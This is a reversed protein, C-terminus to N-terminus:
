QGCLARRVMLAYADRGASTLHIGDDALYEDHGESTGYWDIIGVNNNKAAFDRFVQNNPDQLELPCRITVFYLPKGGVADVLAQVTSTDRILGNTGLAFVVVDPDYGTAVDQAYVDQGVFLQRSVKGDVYADPLYQQLAPAAGETVSDGIYLVKANCTGTNPDFTWRSPDLNKPVVEAIPKPRDDKEKKKKDDTKKADAKSVAKQKPTAKTQVLEPRLREARAQAIDNWNVPAIVLALVIAVAIGCAIRAGAAIPKQSAFPREFLRYFAEAVLLIVVIQIIWGWWPLAQTRTAPNMIELLPYHVLYISFSRSGLYVLPASSLVHGVKCDPHQVTCILLGCVLAAALFGGRYLWADQGSALIFGVILAFLTIEATVNVHRILHAHGAILQKVSPFGLALAAGVLLEAARTDLGYYVRATDQGPVFQLAMAITSLLALAGVCVMLPKRKHTFTALGLFVLPWIIFFQMSVGLYWLHTLPSPLGAADFYSVKRFIYSWNSVFLASPLADAQLKPLLSPSAAYVSFATLAITALVPPMLRRLRKVLYRKYDFSGSEKLEHVMSRTAFYGALVFFLTVGLFGGSLLSPRTHYLVVGIIALARLGDLPLIRSSPSGTKKAHAGASTRKSQWPISGKIGKTGFREAGLGQEKMSLESRSLEATMCM